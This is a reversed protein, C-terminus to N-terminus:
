STGPDITTTPHSKGPDIPITDNVDRADSIVVLPSSPNIATPHIICSHNNDNGHQPQPPNDNSQVQLPVDHNHPVMYMPM